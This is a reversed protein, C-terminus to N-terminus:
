RPLVPVPTPTMDSTITTLFAALDDNEAQSLGHPRMQDSRSPRDIGGSKYHDLVAQLTPLSGDHM